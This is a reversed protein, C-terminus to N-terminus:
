RRRHVAPRISKGSQTTSPSSAWTGATPPGSRLRPARRVPLRRWELADFDRLWLGDQATAAFVLKRGDPSVSVDDYPTVNEPVQAEFRSLSGPAARPWLGWAALGTVLVAVLATTAVPLAQRWVPQAVARPPADHRATEFAGALALSVDGIDRIRQRQDKNLCRKLYTVLVPSCAAPLITWDPERALVSALVESVEDGGFARRGTLMEYLVAGFAWIDARKDVPNGRAQEPSMYVATGLIVGAQTMAPTTITPSQSLGHSTVGTPEWAKALGFDLVKM